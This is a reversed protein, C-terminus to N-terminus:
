RPPNRPPAKDNTLHLPECRQLAPNYVQGGPCSPAASGMHAAAPVGFSQVIKRAPAAQLTSYAINSTEQTGSRYVGTIGHLSGVPTLPASAEYTITGAGSTLTTHAGGHKGVLNMQFALIPAVGDHGVLTQTGVFKFTHIDQRGSTQRNGRNDVVTYTAGVIAGGADNMLEYIIKFGRPIRDSPASFTSFPVKPLPYNFLNGKCTEEATANNSCPLGITEHLQWRYKKSPFNEISWAIQLKDSTPGFNTCYQQYVCNADAPSNGNLQMSMAGPAVIDQEVDITVRLGRIPAGGGYILYNRNSSFGQPPPAIDGARALVPTFSGAAVLGVGRVFTGRNM